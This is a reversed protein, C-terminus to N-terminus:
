TAELEVCFRSILKQYLDIAPEISALPLNEDPQHAVAIDGPGLIVTEMGLAAFFPGETCFLVSGATQGTLRETANVVEASAPTEFPPVGEVLPRFDIDLPIGELRSALRDRLEARLAPVSMGPLPRLDFDLECRGCIRNAADGGQIRGLNLTPSPVAFVPDRYREGLEARFALIEAIVEQMGELASTGLSPDSSHGSRGRLTVREMVIGKHARIPRLNTPEGVIARRARPRGAEVLARAGAMTSEEDATAVLLLPERLAGASFARAAHLATAFFGKMDASGLGHLLGNRETLEFPDSRWAGEDFPVTDTHGALVLGGEGAGLRAILNAKGPRGPVDLVEVAFGVDECFNALLDIVPRNPRDLEPNASSISPIRVLRRIMEVPDLM